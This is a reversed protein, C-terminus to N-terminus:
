AARAKIGALSNKDDLSLVQAVDLLLVLGKDSPYVGTVYDTAKVGQMEPNARIEGPAPTIVSNISDVTIGVCLGGLDTIIVAMESGNIPKIGLKTRLDLITIVQGRLNMVGTFYNPTQPIATTEPPAIVERVCLLPIAYDEKGLSFQLFRSGATEVPNGQNVQPQQSM